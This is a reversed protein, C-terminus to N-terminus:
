GLWHFLSKFITAITTVSFDVEEEKCLIGLPEEGVISRRKLQIHM